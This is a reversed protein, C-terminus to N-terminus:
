GVVILEVGLLGSGMIFDLAIEADVGSMDLTMDGFIYSEIAQALRQGEESAPSQLGMQALEPTIDALSLLESWELVTEEKKAAIDSPSAKAALKIADPTAGSVLIAEDIQEQAATVAIKM